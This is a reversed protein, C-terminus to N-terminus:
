GAFPVTALRAPSGIAPEGFCETFVLREPPVIKRYAGKFRYDKGNPGRPKTWAEFVLERAADFVRTIVVERDSPTTAAFAPNTRSHISAM